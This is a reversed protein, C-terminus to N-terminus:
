DVVPAVPVAVVTFTGVTLVANPSLRQFCLAYDGCPLSTQAASLVVTGTGATGANVFIGSGVTCEIVNTNKDSITFLLDWGTCDENVSFGIVADEGAYVSVSAIEAM